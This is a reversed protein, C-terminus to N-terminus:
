NTITSPNIVQTLQLDEILGTALGYVWGHIYLTRPPNKITDTKLINEIQMKVNEKVVALLADSHSVDSDINMAVVRQILPVLWKQLSTESPPPHPGTQAANLAAAAGGCNTHGAVIVHSVGLAGVAYELVSEASIDGVPFQNAINRHTFIDGPASATIVSEPVRSDACGIWLVKPQQGKASEEFFGKDDLKVDRAWQANSSLLRALPHDGSSFASGNM